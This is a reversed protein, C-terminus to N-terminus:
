DRMPLGSPVALPAIAGLNRAAPDTLSKLFAVLERQEAATLRIRQRIRFDLTRVIRDITAADGRHLPRLAPELHTVDYSRLASDANTYHRVVAELTPYAGNHMYPATLEVNRLTPVRFAFTYFSSDGRSLSAFIEGRGIDLPSASGVGPGLQPIGINAFQQGGLLPGSHCQACQAKGFFLIGGRKADDTMARPDRALFRDFASNTRTFADLEFAAIATAAHQFGLSSTPTGPFAANFRAVYEQLALLRRMTAAWIASAATDPLESLENVNGFRDHDGREGRMEARNLVPLMAQKALVSTVGPPFKPLGSSGGVPVPGNFDFEALRGDWFIYPFTLGQNLMSPANRPVFQRGQGPLRARGTGVGGTGVALSMGDAGATAVDHCTACSVDRNGSLEKDFFLARGLDVLAANQKPIDVIPLVVGWGELAERLELDLSPEFPPDSPTDDSCAAAAMLFAFAVALWPGHSSRWVSSTM